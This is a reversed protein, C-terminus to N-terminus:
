HLKRTEVIETKVSATSREDGGSARHLSVQPIRVWAPLGMPKAPRRRLREALTDDTLWRSSLVKTVMAFILALVCLVM